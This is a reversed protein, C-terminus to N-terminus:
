PEGWSRALRTSARVAVRDRRADMAAIKSTQRVKRQRTPLNPEDDERPTKTAVDHRTAAGNEGLPEAGVNQRRPRASGCPEIAKDMM